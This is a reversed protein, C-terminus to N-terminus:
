RICGYPGRCLEVFNVLAPVAERAEEGEAMSCDGVVILLKRQRSMAVNLRNALRLFGYKGNLQKERLEPSETNTSVKRTSSRVNSLLVVDFEKGQFADVTGIRLREEDNSSLRYEAEPEYGDPTRVMVGLGELEEMIRISQASYFTIVGISLDRGGAQLLRTVERAVVEAEVERIRSSGRKRESGLDAPVDLWACLKGEYGPLQHGFEEASRGSKVADMGVAEYFNRSVFDGLVPHMRFQTDLMVVRQVGDARELRQLQFRLREFLSTEFATRQVDTLNHESAVGQEIDPELL